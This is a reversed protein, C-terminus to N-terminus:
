TEAGARAAALAQNAGKGGFGTHFSETMVTEGPEPFSDVEFTLDMICSVAYGITQMSLDIRWGRYNRVM